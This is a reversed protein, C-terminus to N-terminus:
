SPGMKKRAAQIAIFREHWTIEDEERVLIIDHCPYHRTTCDQSPIPCGTVYSKTPTSGKEGM